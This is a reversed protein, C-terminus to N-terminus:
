LCTGKKSKKRYMEDVKKMSEKRNARSLISESGNGGHREFKLVREEEVQMNDDLYSV